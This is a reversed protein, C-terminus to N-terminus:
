DDYEVFETKTKRIMGGDRDVADFIESQLASFGRKPAIPQVVEKFRAQSVTMTVTKDAIERGLKPHATMAAHTKPGDYVRNGEVIRPGFLKGSKLRIPTDSAQAYIQSKLRKYWIGFRTMLEYREAADQYNIIDLEPHGDDLQILDRLEAQKPCSNFANCWRCWRGIRFEASKGDRAESRVRASSILLQRTTHAILDLDFVPDIEAVDLGGIKPAIAVEIKDAEHVRSAALALFRIQPNRSAPTVSEYGKKDIVILIGPGRGEVDITGPIEFSSRVGYNRKLGVGLFRSTDTSVDYMYSVEARWHTVEPWRDLYVDPIEGANISEEDAAHDAIGRDSWENAEQRHPITLSGPCRDALELGSASLTM